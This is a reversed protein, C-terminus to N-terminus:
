GTFLKEKLGEVSINKRLKIIKFIDSNSLTYFYKDESLVKWNNPLPFDISKDAWIIKIEM